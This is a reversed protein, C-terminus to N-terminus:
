MCRILQELLINRIQKETFLVLYATIFPLPPLSIYECFIHSLMPYKVKKFFTKTLFVHTANILASANIVANYPLQSLASKGMSFPKTVYSSAPIILYNILWEHRDYLEQLMFVKWIHFIWDTFTIELLQNSPHLLPSTSDM